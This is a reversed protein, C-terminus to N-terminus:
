AAYSFRGGFRILSVVSWVQFLQLSVLKLSQQTLVKELAIELLM